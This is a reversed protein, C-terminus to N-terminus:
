ITKKMRVFKFYFLLNFLAIIALVIATIIKVSSIQETVQYGLKVIEISNNHVDAEGGHETCARNFIGTIKVTDGKYKYNGYNLIKDADSKSLWIGIANTGDNINIWTFDGRDMREGIAEGQVTVEKGDLEKANEILTNIDTTEVTTETDVEAKVNISLSVIFAFVM